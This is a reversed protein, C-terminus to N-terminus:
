AQGKLESVMNQIKGKVLTYTYGDSGMAMKLAGVAAKDHYPTDPIVGFCEKVGLKTGRELMSKALMHHVGQGAYSRSIAICGIYGVTNQRMLGAWVFGVVRKNDVAVLAIDRANIYSADITTYNYEELVKNIQPIQHKKARKITIM